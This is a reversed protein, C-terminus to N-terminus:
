IKQIRKEQGSVLRIKGARLLRKGAERIQGYMVVVGAKKANRGVREWLEKETMARTKNISDLLLDDITEYEM